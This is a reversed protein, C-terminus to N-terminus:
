GYVRNREYGGFFISDPQKQIANSLESLFDEVNAASVYGKPQFTTIERYLVTSNM